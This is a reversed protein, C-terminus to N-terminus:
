PNSGQRLDNIAREVRALRAALISSTPDVQVAEIASRLNADSAPQPAQELGEIRADLASILGATAPAPDPSPSPAPAPSPAPTTTTSSATAADASLGQLWRVWEPTVRGAFDVLPVASPNPMRSM